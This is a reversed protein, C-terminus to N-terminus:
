LVADDINSLREIIHDLRAALVALDNRKWKDCFAAQVDSASGISPLREAIRDIRIVLDGGIKVCDRLLGATEGSAPAVAAVVTELARHIRNGNQTPDLAMLLDQNPPAELSIDLHQTWAMHFFATVEDLFAALAKCSRPSSPNPEAAM